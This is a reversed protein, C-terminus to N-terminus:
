YITQDVQKTLLKKGLEVRQMRKLEVLFSCLLLYTLLFAVPM